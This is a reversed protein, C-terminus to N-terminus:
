LNWIMFEFRYDIPTLAYFIIKESTDLVSHEEFSFVLLAVPLSVLLPPKFTSIGLRWGYTTKEPEGLQYM